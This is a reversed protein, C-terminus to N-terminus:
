IKFISKLFHFDILSGVRKQYEELQNPPILKEKGGKNMWKSGKLISM